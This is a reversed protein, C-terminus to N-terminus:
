DISVTALWAVEGTTGIEAGADADVVVALTTTAGDDIVVADGGTTAGDAAVLVETWTGPLGAVAGGTPTEVLLRVVVDGPVTSPEATPTFGVTLSGACDNRLAVADAYVVRDGAMATVSLREEALSVGTDADVITAADDFSLLPSDDDTGASTVFCSEAVEVDGRFLNEILVAAAAPVAFVLTVVITVIWGASIRGGEDEAPEDTPPTTM